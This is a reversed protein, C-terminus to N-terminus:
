PTKRVCQFGADGDAGRAHGRCHQLLQGDRQRMVFQQLYPQPDAVALGAIRGYGGQCTFAPRQDEPARAM